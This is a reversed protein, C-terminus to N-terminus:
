FPGNEVWFPFINKVGDPQPEFPDTDFTSTSYDINLLHMWELKRHMSPSTFGRSNWSELYRNIKEAREEFIQKSLFLKGDHKLGHVSVGFGNKRLDARLSEPTKYREAVFSFTSRFGMSSEVRVLESLNRIGAGNEVDHQLVLAFKKGEPWGRWMIPPTDSGEMIPWDRRFKMRKYRMWQRRLHIQLSRHIFPRLRYYFRYFVNLNDSSM